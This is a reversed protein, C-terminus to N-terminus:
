MFNYIIKFNSINELFNFFVVLAEKLLGVNKPNALVQGYLYKFFVYAYNNKVHM